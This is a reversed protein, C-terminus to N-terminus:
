NRSNEYAHRLVVSTILLLCLYKSAGYVYDLLNPTIGGLAVATLFLAPMLGICSFCQAKPCSLDKQPPTVLYGRVALRQMSDLLTLQTTSNLQQTTPRGVNRREALWSIPLWLPMLVLGFISGGQQDAPLLLEPQGLARCSWLELATQVREGELDNDTGVKFPQAREMSLPCGNPPSAAKGLWTLCLCHGELGFAVGPLFLRQNRGGNTWCKIGGNKAM